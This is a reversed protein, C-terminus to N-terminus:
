SPVRCSLSFLLCQIVCVAAFIDFKPIMSMVLDRAKAAHRHGGRTAAGNTNRFLWEIRLEYRRIRAKIFKVRERGLIECEIGSLRYDADALM